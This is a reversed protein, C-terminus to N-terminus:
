EIAEMRDLRGAVRRELLQATDGCGHELSPKSLGIDDADDHALDCSAGLHLLPGPLEHLRDARDPADDLAALSIPREPPVELGLRGGDDEVARDVLQDRAPHDATERTILVVDGRGLAVDDL